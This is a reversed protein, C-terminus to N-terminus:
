TSFKILIGIGTLLAIPIGWSSKSVINEIANGRREVDQVEEIVDESNKLIKEVVTIGAEFDQNHIDQVLERYEALSARCEDRIAVGDEIIADANGRIDDTIKSHQSTVLSSIKEPIMPSAILQSNESSKQLPSQTTVDARTPMVQNLLGSVFQM